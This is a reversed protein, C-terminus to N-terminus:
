GRQLAGRGAAAGVADLRSIVRKENWGAALHNVFYPPRTQYVDTELWL